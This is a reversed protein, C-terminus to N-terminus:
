PRRGLLLALLLALVAAGALQWVLYLHPVGTHVHRLAAAARRGAGAAPRWVWRDFDLAPVVWRPRGPHPWHVDPSARRLAEHLPAYLGRPDVPPDGRAAPAGGTWVPRRAVAGGGVAVRALVAAWALAFVLPLPAFGGTPPALVLAGPWAPVAGALAPAAALARALWALLPGPVAALALVCAALAVLAARM